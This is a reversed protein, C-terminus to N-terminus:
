IKSNDESEPYSLPISILELSNNKLKEVNTSNIKLNIM